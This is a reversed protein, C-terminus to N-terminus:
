TLEFSVFAFKVNNSKTNFCLIIAWCVISTLDIGYVLEKSIKNILSREQM